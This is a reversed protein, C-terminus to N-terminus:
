EQVPAQPQEPQAPSQAQPKAEKGGGIKGAAFGGIAGAIAGLVAAFAVMYAYAMTMSVVIQAVDPAGGMSATASVYIVNFVAFAISGAAGAIVGSVASDVIAKGGKAALFGAYGFLIPGLVYSLALWAIGGVALGLAPVFITLVGLAISAAGYAIASTKAYAVDAKFDVM